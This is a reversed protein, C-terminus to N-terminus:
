FVNGLIFLADSSAYLIVIVLNVSIMQELHITDTYYYNLLSELCCYPDYFYAAFNEISLKEKRRNIEDGIWM